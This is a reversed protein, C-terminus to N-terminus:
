ETTEAWSPRRKALFAAMGEAAEPGRAAAAFAKAADQVAGEGVREFLGFLLRKTAATAGPACRLLQSLTAALASELADDDACVQHVLGVALAAKADLRAGTLSLRKAESYGLREVLFPAIQAPLVGLSTEPLRFDASAKAIAVDATCALGFGGGM